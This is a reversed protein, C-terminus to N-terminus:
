LNVPDIEDRKLMEILRKVLYPDFQKGACNKLERIIKEKEMPKKYPRGCAMVDYADVVAIIRALLPIKEKELGQPYGSGDWREHHCLIGSAIPHLEHLSEAIRCGAEPHKKMLQWEKNSLPGPKKIIEEPISIKGIDHLTALIKLEDLQNESLGLKQGLKLGIEEMRQVHKRTENTKEYLINELFKLISRRFSSKELLKYRYMKEEAERLVAKLSKNTDNKVGVGLAISIPVSYNKSEAECAKKIRRCIDRAIKEETQPLLIAFEDGGWRCIIDETRCTRKLIEAAKIILKDGMEHGLSDNVLKLGNVDGIIVCLPLQRKTDLRKLEEEFYARNYLNTLSDHFSLYKIEEEAQKKGSIDRIIAIGEAEDEAIIRIEFAFSEGKLDFCYEYTQIEKKELAVSLLSPIEKVMEAPLIEEVETQGQEWGESALVDIFEGDRNLKVILDPILSLVKKLTNERERLRDETAKREQIDRSMSKTLYHQGEQNFVPQATLEFWRYDGDKGKLRVESVNGQAIEIIQQRDEPHFFEYPFRGVMEEPEYGLIEKVNSSVRSYSGDPNHICIIDHPDEVSFSYDREAEMTFSIKEKPFEDAIKKM